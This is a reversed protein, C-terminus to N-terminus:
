CLCRRVYVRLLESDIDRNIIEGLDSSPREFLVMWAVHHVLAKLLFSTTTPQSADRLWLEWDLPPLVESDGGDLFSTIVDLGEANRLNVDTVVHLTPNSFYRAGDSLPIKQWGLCDWPECIQANTGAVISRREALCPDLCITYAGDTRLQSEQPVSYVTPPTSV